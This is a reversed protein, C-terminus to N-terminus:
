PLKGKADENQIFVKLANKIPVLPYNTAQLIAIDIKKAGLPNTEISFTIPTNVEGNPFELVAEGKFKRFYYIAGDERYVNRLEIVKM